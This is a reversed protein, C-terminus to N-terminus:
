ITYYQEWDKRPPPGMLLENAFKNSHDPVGISVADIQNGAKDFMERFDQYRPVNPFKQLIDLTHPAGM